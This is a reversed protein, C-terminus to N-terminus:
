TDRADSREVWFLYPWVLVRRSDDTDQSRWDALTDALTDAPIMEDSELETIIYESAEHWYDFTVPEVEPLCGPQNWGAIWM